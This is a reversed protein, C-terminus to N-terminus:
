EECTTFGYDVNNIEWHMYRIEVYSWSIAGILAAIGLLLFGLEQLREMLREKTQEAQIGYSALGTL